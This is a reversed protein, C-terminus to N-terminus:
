VSGGEGGARPESSLTRAIQDSWSAMLRGASVSGPRLEWLLALGQMTAYLITAAADIDLDQRVYGARQSARLNDVILQRSEECFKAMSERAWVERTALAWLEASLSLMGAENDSRLHEFWYNTFRAIADELSPAGRVMNFEARGGHLHDEFVALMIAHKTPFHHYLSGMSAGAESVIDDVSGLGYGRAAFVRSAADLLLRRTELSRRERLTPATASSNPM